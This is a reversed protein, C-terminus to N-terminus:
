CPVRELLLAEFFGVLSLCDLDFFLLDLDLFHPM